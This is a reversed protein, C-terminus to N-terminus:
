FAPNEQKAPFVMMLMSCADDALFVDETKDPVGAM